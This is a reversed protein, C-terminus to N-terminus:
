EICLFVFLRFVCSSNEGPLVGTLIGSSVCVCGFGVCMSGLERKVVCLGLTICITQIGGGEQTHTDRWQDPM